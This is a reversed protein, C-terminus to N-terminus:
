TAASVPVRELRDLARELAAHVAEAVPVLEPTNNVEQIGLPDFAMVVRHDGADQVVVSCPMLLGFGRWIELAQHAYKPNCAGLIKYREIEVGLKQDLTAQVDVLVLDDGEELSVAMHNRDGAVSHIVCRRQLCGVDADRHAEAAGVKGALGAVHHDRVVFKAEITAAM